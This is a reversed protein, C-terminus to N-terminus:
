FVKYFNIEHLWRSLGTGMDCWTEGGCDQRLWMMEGVLRQGMIKLKLHLSTYYVTPYLYKYVIIIYLWVYVHTHARARSHVCMYM